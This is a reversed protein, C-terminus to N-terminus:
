FLTTCSQQQTLTTVLLTKLEVAAGDYQQYNQISYTQKTCFIVEGSVGSQQVGVFTKCAASRINTHDSAEFKPSRTHWICCIM